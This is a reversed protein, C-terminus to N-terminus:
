KFYCIVRNNKMTRLMDDEYDLREQIQQKLCENPTSELLNKLASLKENRDHLLNNWILTAKNYDSLEFNLDEFLSRMYLSPVLEFM